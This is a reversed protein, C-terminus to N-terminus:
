HAGQEARALIRSVPVGLAQAIRQLTDVSVNVDGRELRFVFSRHVGAEAALREQSLGREKRLDRITRGLQERLSGEM